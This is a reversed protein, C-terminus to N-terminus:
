KVNYDTLVYTVPSATHTDVVWKVPGTGPHIVEEWSYQLTGGDYAEKVYHYCGTFTGAPVTVTEIASIRCNVVSGDGETYSWTTGVPGTKFGVFPLGGEYGYLADATSLFFGFEFDTDWPEREEMEMTYLWVGFLNSFGIIRLTEGSGPMGEQELNWWNGVKLPVLSQGWAVGGLMGFVLVMVGMVAFKRM